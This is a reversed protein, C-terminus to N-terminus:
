EFQKSLAQRDIKGNANLPMEKVALVNPRMYFPLTEGLQHGIAQIDIAEGTVVGLLEQGHNCVVAAAQAVGRCARLAAEIEGLEIRYGRVKVQNDQRGLFMLPREPTAARVRDGTRYYTSPIGNLRVFRESTRERDDLYGLTVQPGAVLLEGVEGPAVPRLRQDVVKADLGPLPHGIPVLGQEALAREDARFRHATCAITLETPGYLNEVVSSSAAKAWADAVDVPLGEGCFLSWRLTPYQDPRLQRFRRMMAAASPVSFWVTLEAAQIYPGPTVTQEDSPVCLRAGANWAAFIDFVSLDFTLDFTQSFRDSAAFSYRQQITALFHQVNRHAVMVGKPVGTSGSTFLLYAVDGPQVAGRCWAGSAAIDHAGLFTHGPTRRRLQTVDASDPLLVVMPRGITDLVQELGGTAEAGVILSTAGSRKLMAATRAIPFRPHLPCYAHGRLLAAAVATYAAESRQAFVATVRAGSDTAGDLTCAWAEARQRLDGYSVTRGGVTLAAAGEAVESNALLGGRLGEYAHM